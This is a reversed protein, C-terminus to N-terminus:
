ATAAIWRGVIDRIAAGKATADEADAVLIVGRDPTPWRAIGVPDAFAFGRADKVKAGRHLVIRIGGKRELGLTVRHADGHRYSPANWKIEEVLNDAATLVLGRVTDITNRTTPDLGALFDAVIPSM